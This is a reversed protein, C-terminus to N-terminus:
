HDAKSGGDRGRPLEIWARTETDFLHNAAAEASELGQGGVTWLGRPTSVSAPMAFRSRLNEGGLRTWGPGTRFRFAGGLDRVILSDGAVGHMAFKAWMPAPPPALARWAGDKELVWHERKPEFEDGDLGGVVHLQGDIEHMLHFHDGPAFGPPARRAEVVGTELDVRWFASREAPYGGLIWAKGDHLACAFHSKPLGADPLWATWERSRCDYRDVGTGFAFIADGHRVAGFFARGQPMPHLPRWADDGDALWFVDHMGRTADSADGYGGLCMYGDIGRVIQHGHRPGPLPPRNAEDPPAATCALM